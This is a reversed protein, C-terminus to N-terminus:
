LLLNHCSFIQYFRYILVFWIEVIPFSWIQCEAHTCLLYQTFLQEIFSGPYSQPGALPGVTLSRCCCGSHGVVSNNCYKKERCFTHMSKLIFWLAVLCLTCEYDWWILSALNNFKFMEKHGLILLIYFLSFFM